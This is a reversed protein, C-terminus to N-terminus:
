RATSAHTVIATKRLPKSPLAKFLTPPRGSMLAKTVLVSWAVGRVVFARLEAPVSFQALTLQQLEMDIEFYRSLATCLHSPRSL